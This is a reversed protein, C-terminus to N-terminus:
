FNMSHQVCWIWGLWTAFTWSDWAALPQGVPSHLEWPQEWRRRSRWEEWVNDEWVGQVDVGTQAGAERLVEVSVTQRMTEPGFVRILPLSKFFWQWIDSHQEFDKLPCGENWHFDRGKIELPRWLITIISVTLKVSLGGVSGELWALRRVARWFGVEKMDEIAWTAGM